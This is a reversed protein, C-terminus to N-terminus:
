KIEDVFKLLQALEPSYQSSARNPQKGGSVTRSVPAAVSTQGDATSPARALISGDASPTIINPQLRSQPRKEKELPPTRDVPASQIQSSITELQKQLASIMLEQQELKARTLMDSQKSNEVLSPHTGGNKPISGEMAGAGQTPVVTIQDQPGFVSFAPVWGSSAPPLPIRAVGEKEFFCNLFSNPTDLELVFRLITGPKIKFKDSITRSEGENPGVIRYGDWVVGEGDSGQIIVGALIRGVGHGLRDIHVEWSTTGSYFIQSGTVLTHSPATDSARSLTRHNEIVVGKQRGDQPMSLVFPTRTSTTPHPFHFYGPDIIDPLRISIPNSVHKLLDMVMPTAFTCRVEPVLIKPMTVPDANVHKLRTVFDLFKLAWDDSRTDHQNAPPMNGLLPEAEKLHEEYILHLESAQQVTQEIGKHEAMVQQIIDSKLQDRWACIDKIMQDVNKDLMEFQHNVSQDLIGHSHNLNGIVTNTINLQTRCRDAWAATDRVYTEAALRLSIFPHDKHIGQVHCRSSVLCNCACCWFEAPLDPYVTCRAVMNEGHMYVGPISPTRQNRAYGLQTPPTSPKYGPYAVASRYGTAGSASAPPPQAYLGYQSASENLGNMSRPRVPSSVPPLNAPTPTSSVTGGLPAPTPSKQPAAPILNKPDREKSLILLRDQDYKEFGLAAFMKMRTSDDCRFLDAVPVQSEGLQSTLKRWLEDSTLEIPEDTNRTRDVTRSTASHRNPDYRFRVPQASTSPPEYPQPENVSENVNTLKTTDGTQPPAEIATITHLTVTGCNGCYATASKRTGM